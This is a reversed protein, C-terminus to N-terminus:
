GSVEGGVPFASKRDIEEYISTLLIPLQIKVDCAAKELVHPHRLIEVPGALRGSCFAKINDETGVWYLGTGIHTTDVVVHKVRCRCVERIRTQQILVEDVSGDM